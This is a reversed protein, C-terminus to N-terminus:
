VGSHRSLDRFGEGGSIYLCFLCQEVDLGYSSLCSTSSGIYLILGQRAGESATSLTVVAEEFLAPPALPFAQAVAETVRKFPVSVNLVRTVAYCCCAVLNLQHQEFLLEYHGSQLWDMAAQVQPCLPLSLHRSM